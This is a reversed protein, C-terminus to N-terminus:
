IRLLKDRLFALFGSDSTDNDDDALQITRIGNYLYLESDTDNDRDGTWVAYRASAGRFDNDGPRNSNSLQVVRDGNYVFVESGAEWIVFNGFINEQYNFIEIEDNNTLRVERIGDYLYLEGSDEWVVYKESSDEFKGTGNNTAQVIRTGDFIGVDPNSISFDPNPYTQWTIYRGSIKGYAGDLVEGFLEPQNNNTLRIIRRGNYAFFDDYTRGTNSEWLAYRASIGQFTDDNRNNNTLKVIRSGNYLYLESDNGDTTKWGTNNGAIAFFTDNINNNTLRITM